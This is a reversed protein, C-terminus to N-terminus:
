AGGLLQRLTRMSEVACTEADPVPRAEISIYGSYGIERLTRVVERNTITLGSLTNLGTGGIIAIDTM